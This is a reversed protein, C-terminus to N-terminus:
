NQTQYNTSSSLSKIIKSKSKCKSTEMKIHKHGNLPYTWECAVDVTICPM